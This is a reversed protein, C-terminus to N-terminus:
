VRPRSTYVAEAREANAKKVVLQPVELAAFAANIRRVTAALYERVEPPLEATAYRDPHYIMAKRHYASKVEDFSAGARVGLEAYPDFTDIENARRSIQGNGPVNVLKVAKISTKAILSREGGYPEFELFQVGGNLLEVIGRGQPALFKGRLSRGDDLTVEVPIAVTHVASVNDVKVREFM